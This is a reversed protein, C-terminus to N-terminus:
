AIKDNPVEGPDAMKILCGEAKQLWTIRDRMEIRNETLCVQQLILNFAEAYRGGM